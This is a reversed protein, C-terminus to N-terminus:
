TETCPRDCQVATARGISARAPSGISADRAKAAARGPVRSCSMSVVSGTSAERRAQANNPQRRGHRHANLNSAMAMQVRKKEFARRGVACTKTQEGGRRMVFRKGRQQWASSRAEQTRGSSRAGAKRRRDYSRNASGSPQNVDVSQSRDIFASAGGRGSPLSYPAVSAIRRQKASDHMAHRRLAVTKKVSASTSGSLNCRGALRARPSAACM